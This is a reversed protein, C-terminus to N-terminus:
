FAGYVPRNGDALENTEEDYTFPTWAIQLASSNGAIATSPFLSRDAGTLRTGVHATAAAAKASRAGPLDSRSFVRKGM